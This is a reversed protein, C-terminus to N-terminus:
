SRLASQHVLIESQFGAANRHGGGGFTKAIESVDFDGRSRLSYQFLGDFRQWWGVAFPPNHERIVADLLESIDVQPANVVPVRYGAVTAWRLNKSAEAIYQAVKERVTQGVGRMRVTRLDERTGGGPYARLDRQSAEEAKDWASFDFPLIGIAANVDHSDPLAHRWLDRDEVYDVLMPRPEGAFFFDWALGAGSREMDFLTRIMQHANEMQDLAANEMHREWSVVGSWERMSVIGDTGTEALDAAATRHHDLVVLSNAAARLAVLTGRPYSFDVMIVDRDTVDPPEKGYYAYHIEADPLARKVIWAACFGDRCSGHTIVLTGMLVREIAFPTKKM